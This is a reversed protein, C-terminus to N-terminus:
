DNKENINRKKKRYEELDSKLYLKYQSRGNRKREFFPKVMNLKVSQDFANQSQNTISAAQTRDLLNVQLYEKLYGPNEQLLTFFDSKRM